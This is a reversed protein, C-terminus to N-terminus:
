LYEAAFTLSNTVWSMEIMYFPKMSGNTVVYKVDLQCYNMVKEINWIPLRTGFKTVSAFTVTVGPKVGIWGDGM